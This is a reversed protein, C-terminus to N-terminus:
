RSQFNPSERTPIYAFLATSAQTSAETSIRTCRGSEDMVGRAHVVVSRDDIQVAVGIEHALRQTLGALGIGGALHRDTGHDDALAPDDGARPVLHFGELVGGGVRFHEREGRRLFREAVPPQFFAREVHGLLRARHAGPGDDMAPRLPHNEAARIGLAARGAAPDVQEFGIRREVVAAVHGGAHEALFAHEQELTKEALRPLPLFQLPAAPIRNFRFSFRLAAFTAFPRM